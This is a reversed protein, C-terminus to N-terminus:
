SPADSLYAHFLEHPTKFGLIQRPTNNLIDAIIDLDKQKLFYPRVHKPLLNRIRGNMNEVAGKQWPSGPDCFYTSTPLQHHNAFETGRDFTISKLSFLDGTFKKKIGGIVEESTKNSNLALKTFRTKREVLTTINKSRLTTFIILDGEWHGAEKRKNIEQPREHVSVFNTINPKKRKRSKRMGRKKRRFKLYSPLNYKLGTKSYIFQYILESSAKLGLNGLKLSASIEKPTWRSITLKSIVYDQLNPNLFLAKNRSLGARYMAHARDPIYGLPDDKCKKLENSISSKHRGLAKAIGTINIDQKQLLYIKEREELSIRTYEPMQLIHELNLEVFGL